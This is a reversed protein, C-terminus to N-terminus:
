LDTAFKKIEMSTYILEFGRKFIWQSLQTHNDWACCESYFQPPLMPLQYFTYFRLHSGGIKQRAIYDFVFTNGASVFCVKLDHAVNTLNVIPATDATGVEPLVAFVATRFLVAGTLDRWCILWEDKHWHEKKKYVEEDKIWYRPQSFFNCNNHQEATLHPLVGKNAQAQTQNEYTGFRHDFQWIMKGEYLPLFVENVGYFVNGVLKYGRSTIKEFSQFLGSDSSMNFLGQRCVVGWPNRKTSENYIILISHYIKKTLEADRNSRFIPCTNTNPNLISFDEENLSFHREQEHLHEVKRAFFVFDSTVNRSNTGTLTMLCFKTENHVQPFIKEENEFGYISINRQNKVIDQFFCKTSDDTIIATPLILGIRARSSVISLSHEAFISFTNLKGRTCM